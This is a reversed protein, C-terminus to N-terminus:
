EGPPLIDPHFQRHSKLRAFRVLNVPIITLIIITLMSPPLEHEGCEVDGLNNIGMKDMCLLLLLGEFHCRSPTTGKLVLFRVFHSLSYGVRVPMLRLSVGLRM